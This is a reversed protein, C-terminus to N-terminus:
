EFVYNVRLDTAVEALRPDVTWLSLRGVLASALLHADIWGIGRGHLRRQRIFDVVEEHPVSPAQFMLLYDALLQKRGGKDGILLEGFVFDHGSVEGRSLLDELQRAYPARNSLFRIWVSTDVLVM